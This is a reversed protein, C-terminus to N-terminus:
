EVSEVNRICRDICRIKGYSISNYYGKMEEEDADLFHNITM